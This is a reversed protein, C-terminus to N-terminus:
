KRTKAALLSEGTRRAGIIEIWDMGQVALLSGRTALM